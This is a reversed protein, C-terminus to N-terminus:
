STRPIRPQVGRSADRMSAACARAGSLSGDKKVVRYSASLIALTNGTKVEHAGRPARMKPHGVGRALTALTTALGAADEEITAGPFREQLVGVTNGGGPAFEFAVLGRSSMAAIFDGLASQGLAYRIRDSM